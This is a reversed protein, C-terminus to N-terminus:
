VHARGIQNTGDGIYAAADAARDASVIRAVFGNDGEGHVTPAFRVALPRVGHEAFSMAFEAAAVRPHLAPDPQDLETGARGVGLGLVGSAFVFPKDSGSLASCLADVVRQETAAADAMRSFDHNYALHVVADSAAAVAGLAAPDDISGRHFPGGGKKRM